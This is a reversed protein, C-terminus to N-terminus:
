NVSLCSREIKGFSHLMMYRAASSPGGGRTGQPIPRGERGGEQPERHHSNGGGQGEAFLITIMIGM